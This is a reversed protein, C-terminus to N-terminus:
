CFNPLLSSQFKIVGPMEYKVQPLDLPDFFEFSEFLSTSVREPKPNIIGEKELFKKKTEKM